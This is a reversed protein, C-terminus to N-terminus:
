GTAQAAVEYADSAIRAHLQEDTRRTEPHESDVHERCLRFLDADDTAEFQHGCPRDIARM